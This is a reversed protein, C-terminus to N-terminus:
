TEQEDIFELNRDTIISVMHYLDQVPDSGYRIEKLKQVINLYVYFARDLLKKSLEEPNYKAAHAREFTALYNVIQTAMFPMPLMEKRGFSTKSETEEEGDKDKSEKSLKKKKSVFYHSSLGLHRSIFTEMGSQDEFKQALSAKQNPAMKRDHWIFSPFRGMEMLKSEVDGWSMGLSHLHCAILQWRAKKAM